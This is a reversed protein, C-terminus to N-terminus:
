IRSTFIKVIDACKRFVLNQETEFDRLGTKVKLVPGVVGLFVFLNNYVLSFQQM